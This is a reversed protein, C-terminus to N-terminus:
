NWLRMEWELFYLILNIDRTKFKRSVMALTAVMKKCCIEVEINESVELETPEFGFSYNDGM